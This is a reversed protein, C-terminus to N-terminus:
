RERFSEHQLMIVPKLLYEIVSKEGTKIDAMVQMGATIPLPKEASGLYSEVTQIRVRFYPEGTQEDQLSDASISKVVGELGGFRAFDYTNVKVLAAQGDKVFGIDNPNLRVEIVLNASQPVIEMVTQGPQIVGGLTHNKLSKVIGAIPSTITTRDVQDDARNLAEKTRAIAQEVDNLEQQAENQFNLQVGKLKNEAEEISSKARPISVDIVKLRGQLEKLESSLQLHELRSTLKDKVLDKSIRFKERLVSLNTVISSREAQLQKRDLERQSKQDKLQAAENKLKYQRSTFTQQEAKKLKERYGDYAKDFILETKGASEAMLRARKLQLAQQQIELEEKNAMFPTLNLQILSEGKAVRAGETVFIKEIIGGELHQITQIQEQPVVEGSAIAVEELKATFAWGLFAVLLLSVVLATVRWRATRSISLLEDLRSM